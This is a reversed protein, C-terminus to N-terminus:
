RLIWEGMHTEPKAVSSYKVKINVIGHTDPKAVSSYKVKINM